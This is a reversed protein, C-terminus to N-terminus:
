QQFQLNDNLERFKEYDDPFKKLMQLFDDKNLVLFTSFELCKVTKLRKSNTFFSIAGFHDNTSKEM